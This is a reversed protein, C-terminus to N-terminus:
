LGCGPRPRENTRMNIRAISNHQIEIGSDAVAGAGILAAVAVVGEAVAGFLDDAARGGAGHGIHVVGGVRQGLDV